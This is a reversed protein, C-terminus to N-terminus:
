IGESMKLVTQRTVGGGRKRAAHMTFTPVAMVAAGDGPTKRPAVTENATVKLELTTRSVVMAAPEVGSADNDPTVPQAKTDMVPLPVEHDKLTPEQYWAKSDPRQRGLGRESKHTGNSATRAVTM